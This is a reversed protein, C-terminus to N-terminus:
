ISKGQTIAFVRDKVNYHFSLCRRHKSIAKPTTRPPILV